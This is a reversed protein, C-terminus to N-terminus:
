VLAELLKIVRGFATGIAMQKMDDLSAFCGDPQKLLYDLQTGAIASYDIVVPELHWVKHTFVHKVPKFKKTVHVKNILDVKDSEILPFGWLNALLGEAPRKEMWFAQDKQILVAFYHEVAQPAKQSKVPFKLMEGTQYGLCLLQVPCSDCKPNQPTCIIAGLEMLAQTMVRPEELMLSMVKKEFIKKTAAISIDADILFQRSLIRMVNGDVAPFSKNFAISLIAGATYDGIGPVKKITDPENPFIGDHNELIYRAGKHLNEARRYYGLGKWYLFVDDLASLALKELTPFREIFKLYYPIVTNVQTQQLMVESVWIAYPDSTHRWPMDRKNSEYWRCLRSAYEAENM